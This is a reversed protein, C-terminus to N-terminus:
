SMGQYAYEQRSVIPEFRNAFGFFNRFMARAYPHDTQLEPHGNSAALRGEEDAIIEIVEDPGPSVGVVYLGIGLRDIAHHHASYAGTIHESGVESAITESMASGEYRIHIDHSHTYVHPGRGFDLHNNPHGPPLNPSTLHDISRLTGGRSINLGELGRCIGLLPLGLEDAVDFFDSETADREADYGMGERETQDDPAIGSYEPGWDSGGFKILGSVMGAYQRVMARDPIPPINVPAFGAEYIIKNLVAPVAHMGIHSPDALHENGGPLTRDMNRGSIGILPRIEAM